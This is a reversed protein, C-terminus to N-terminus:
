LNFINEVKDKNNNVVFYINDFCNLYKGMYYVDTLDVMSEMSCSSNTLLLKYIYLLSNHDNDFMHVLVNKCKNIYAFFLFKDVIDRIISYTLKKTLSVSVIDSLFPESMLNNDQGRFIAVNPTFIIYDDPELSKYVYSLPQYLTSISLLKCETNGCGKPFNKLVNKSSTLNLIVLKCDLIYLAGILSEDIVNFSTINKDKFTGYNRNIDTCFNNFKYILTRNRTENLVDYLPINAERNKIMCKYYADNIIKITDKAIHKQSRSM